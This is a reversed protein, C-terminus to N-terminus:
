KATSARVCEGFRSGSGGGESRRLAADQSVLSRTRVEPPEPGSAARSPGAARPSPCRGRNRPRYGTQRDRLKELRRTLFHHITEVRVRVAGTPRNEDVDKFAFHPVGACELIEHVVSSIPADHGCKFSSLEVAVLNPHRAALKAAWLKLCSAAATTNKWVDSVDMADRIVGADLEAGFLRRLRAPDTPLTSQSLIPYGLRQLQGLIGQNLGPDHHYVRGLVLIGIRNERELTTLVQDALRELEAEYRGQAVFAAAVARANEGEDLELIGRWADLLQRELLARDALSVMPSVWAIGHERFVDSEKTFAAKVVEPTTSVMPCAFSGITGWLPTTMQDIMPLFICSLPERRHKAYILDHVHPIAVKSPYCPDIAGRRAGERYLKESTVSSYVVNQPPVGLSALYAGFFPAYQYLALVRPIGVRV